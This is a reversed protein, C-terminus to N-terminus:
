RGPALPILARERQPHTEYMRLAVVLGSVATLAAVAWIAVALGLLDAIV